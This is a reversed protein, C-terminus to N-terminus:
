ALVRAKWALESSMVKPDAREYFNQEVDFNPKAKELVKSLLRDLQAESLGGEASHTPRPVAAAIRGNMGKPMTLVEARKEGVIYSEGGKVEGGFQRLPAIDPFDIKKGATHVPGFDIGPLQFSLQNWWAIVKNIETKFAESLGDWVGSFGDKSFTASVGSWWKTVENWKDEVYKWAANWKDRIPKTTEDWWTSISTKFSDWKKGMDSKFNDWDIKLNNLSTTWKDSANKGLDNWFGDWDNTFYDWKTGMDKKWADWDRKTNGTIENWKDEVKQGTADWIENWKTQVSPGFDEKLWKEVKMGFEVMDQTFAPGNPGGFVLDVISKMGIGDGLGSLWTIKDVIDGLSKNLREMAGSKVFNDLLKITDGIAKAFDKGTGSKNLDKLLDRLPPIADTRLTKIFDTFANGDKTNAPDFLAKFLDSALGVTQEIPEKMSLFFDSLMKQNKPNAFWKAMDNLAKVLDDTLAQALPTAAKTISMLIDAAPKFLDLLGNIHKGGKDEFGALLKLLGDLLDKFRKQVENSTFWKMIDAFADGMAKAFDFAYKKLTPFIKEIDKLGDMVGPLLGEQAAKQIESFGPMFEDHLFKVFKRGTPSLANMAANLNRMAASGQATKQNARDQAERIREQARIVDQQRKALTDQADRERKLAAVVLDSGEIGKKQADTLRERSDKTREQARQLDQQARLVAREAEARQDAADTADQSVRAVEYVKGTFDDTEKTLVTASKASKRQVAALNEQARRLRDVADQESWTADRVDRGLNVINKAAQERAKGVAEHADKLNKQADTVSQLADKLSRNADILDWNTKVAKAMSGQTEKQVADMAKYAPMINQIGLIVSGFGAGLAGIIPLTTAAAAGIAALAGPILTAIGYFADFILVPMAQGLAGMVSGLKGGEAATNALAGGAGGASQAVSGLAGGAGQAASTIESLAGGAASAAAGLAGVQPIAATAGATDIDVDIKATRNKAAAAVATDFAQLAAIAGAPNAEVEAVLREVTVAM